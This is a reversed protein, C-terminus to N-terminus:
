WYGRYTGTPDVYYWREQLTSQSHWEVHGDTYGVNCGGNGPPVYGAPKETGIVHNSGSAASFVGDANRTIDTWMVDYFPVDTLNSAAWPQAANATTAPSTPSHGRPPNEWVVNYQEPHPYYCYGWVSAIDSKTGDPYQWFTPINWADNSPCYFFTWQVGLENAIRDRWDQGSSDGDIWYPWGTNPLHIPPLWGRSQAAYTYSWQCLSRINSACQTRRATDRAKSLAPLLLSILIVIISVVVLLETLTFGRKCANGIPRRLSLRQKSTTM